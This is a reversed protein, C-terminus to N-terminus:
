PREEKEMLLLLKKNKLALEMLQEKAYKMKLKTEEVEDANILRREMLSDYFDALSDIASFNMKLQRLKKAVDQEMKYLWRWYVQGWGM